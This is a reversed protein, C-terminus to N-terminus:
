SSKTRKRTVNIKDSSFQFMESLRVHIEIVTATIREATEGAAGLAVVSLDEAMMGVRTLMEVIQERTEDDMGTSSGCRQARLRAAAKQHQM